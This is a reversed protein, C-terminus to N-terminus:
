LISDREGFKCRIYAGCVPDFLLQSHVLSFQAQKDNDRGEQINLCWSEHVHM